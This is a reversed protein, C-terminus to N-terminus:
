LFSCTNTFPCMLLGVKLSLAAPLPAHAICASSCPTLSLSSWCRVLFMEKKLLPGTASAPETGQVGDASGPSDPQQATALCAMRSVPESAAVEHLLQQQDSLELASPIRSVTIIQSGASIPRSGSTGSSSACHESAEVSEQKSIVASHVAEFPSIKRRAVRESGATSPESECAPAMLIGPFSVSRLLTYDDVPASLQGPVSAISDASHPRNKSAGISLRMSVTRSQRRSMAAPAGAGSGMSPETGATPQGSGVNSHNAAGADSSESATFSNNSSIKSDSRIHLTAVRPPSGSGTEAISDRPLQSPLRAPRGAMPHSGLSGLQLAPAASLGGARARIDIRGPEKSAISKDKLRACQESQRTQHLLLGSAAACVSLQWGAKAVRLCVPSLAPTLPHLSYKGSNDKPTNSSLSTERSIPCAAWAIDMYSACCNGSTMALRASM